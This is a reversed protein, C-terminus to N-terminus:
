AIERRHRRRTGRRPMEGGKKGTEARNGKRGPRCPRKGGEKGPIPETVGRDDPKERMQRRKNQGTRVKQGEWPYACAANQQIIAKSLFPAKIAHLGIGEADVDAAGLNREACERICKVQEGAAFEGIVGRARRLIGKGAKRRLDPVAERVRAHLGRRDRM